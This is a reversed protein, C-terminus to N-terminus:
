KSIILKAIRVAELANEAYGDSGIERAWESSIPAGGVLVKVSNRLGIDKLSDVVKRQELMTTTMLASLGIIDPKYEKAKEIITETPVDRGLDVVNFGSATLMTAVLNKGLDHIDGQVTGILVKSATREREKTQLLKPKVIKLSENMIDAALVLHPIYVEGRAFREGMEKMGKSLGTEVVEFPDLGLDLAKRTYALTKQSDLELISKSLEELLEDRSL